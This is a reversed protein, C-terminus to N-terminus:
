RDIWQHGDGFGVDRGEGESGEESVKSAGKTEPEPDPSNLKKGAESQPQRSTDSLAARVYVSTTVIFFRWLSFLVGLIWYICM